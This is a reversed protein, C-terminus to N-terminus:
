ECILATVATALNFVDYEADYEPDTPWPTVDDHSLERALTVM